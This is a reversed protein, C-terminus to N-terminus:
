KADHKAVEKEVTEDMASALGNVCHSFSIYEPCIDDCRGCGVCMHYGNRQKYDWIKHLVKARMRQGHSKRYSGGGAVDTFGDVMCSAMVRRREGARCNESYYLDQMTFCTCTPCVLNCRGCGVCRKDYQDWYPSETISLELREPITVNFHNSSVHKPKIEVNSISLKELHRFWDADNCDLLLLDGQKGVSLDYNETTNTGMSICFCNEFSGSCEMLVIKVNERIRQYYYDAPGNKLYMDDMRRLAHIDCSRMFIVAGKKPPDPEKVEQETFFFLTQIVPTLIEKFSYHSKEDFVIEDITEIIGYRIVDTDAYMGTGIFRKPAFVDYDHRIAHLWENFQTPHMLIGM